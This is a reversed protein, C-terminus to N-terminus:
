THELRLLQGIVSLPHVASLALRPGFILLIGALRTAGKNYAKPILRSPVVELSVLLRQDLKREVERMKKAAQCEEGIGIWFM